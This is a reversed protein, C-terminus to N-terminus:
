ANCAEMVILLAADNTVARLGLEVRMEREVCIVIKHPDFVGRAQPTAIKM